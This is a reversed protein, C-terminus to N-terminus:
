QAPQRPQILVSKPLNGRGASLTELRRWAHGAAFRSRFLSRRAAPSAADDGAGRPPPSQGHLTDIADPSQTKVDWKFLRVVITDPLFDALTFGHQEIPKVDEHLDLHAPPTPGVGRFASLGAARAAHRDSGRARDHDPQGPSRTAGRAADPRDRDCSPRRQRHAAGAAGDGGDIADISRAAAVLGGALLTEADRHDAEQGRGLMDPYWEGWKGASWGPPNSPVHVLHTVESRPRARTCGSNSKPISFVASPGALTMTRRVDYLIIEALRGIVCRASARRCGSGRRGGIVVSPRATARTRCSSRTTCGSRRARSGSCSLSPPFTVIEDTAEDNDFYDHDDQLFVGADIPLRHRVGSRNAARGRAEARDRQRGSSSRRVISSAPSDTRGRAIRGAAPPWPALLDWYVHDGNAVVADRSFRFGAACCGTACRRRCSLGDVEHGGACTFFLLRFREPSSTPRRFPRSSGRSACRRAMAAPRALAFLPRGPALGTPTSSGVSAQTDNMRGRVATGGVRLTPASALPATFSAKILMRTDSVTPLLHRVRGPDWAGASPGPATGAQAFLEGPLGIGLATATSAHLFERRNFSM